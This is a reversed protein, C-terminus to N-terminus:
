AAWNQAVKKKASSDLVWVFIVQFMKLAMVLWPLLCAILTIPPLYGSNPWPARNWTVGIGQCMVHCTGFILATWAVPGYIFSWQTRTMAQAVCPLSCVGMLVYLNFAFSGFMFSSEGNVSMRSMPDEPDKFFRDYYAISFMLASMVMHVGLFFLSVLGLHKRCALYNKLWVPKNILSDRHWARHMHALIGPVMAVTFGWLATWSVSKNMVFLPFQEIPYAKKYGM